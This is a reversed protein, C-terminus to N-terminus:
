GKKEIQLKHLALQKKHVEIEQSSPRPVKNNINRTITEEEEPKLSLAEIKIDIKEWFSLRRPVSPIRSERISGLYSIYVQRPRGNVRVSRILAVFLSSDTKLFQKGWRIFMM